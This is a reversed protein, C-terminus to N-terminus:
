KLTLKLEVKEPAFCIHNDCCQYAVTCKAEGGGSGAIEQRFVITDEYITTGEANYFRVDPLKMAGVTQYGDPLDFSVRTPIFPDSPATEAYLHYGPHISIKVVLEKNGNSLDITRSGIDVPELDSTTGSPITAIAARAEKAHYDNVGPERSNILFLWGGAETFFMRDKNTDFWERWEEPTAFDCLTYRTLIRKGKEADESSEMLRIATDLLRLDNNPIGLSKVDEDLEFHYFGFSYFYDKNEDYFKIYAESDTGFRDFFDKQYRKIYAEFPMVAPKKMNVITKDAASLKEGKTQKEKLEQQRKQMQAYFEEDSKLRDEYSEHTALYKLEKLYERTAIRDEYKRAIVGQGAFKSIYVIANALVTQAEPTMYRPSAAFGWHLFNGHRGIAVADLTKACVGSSIYEAEPSDEFGWPRAVMGIRFGADSEYGKTQVQWMPISDPITGDVYYQYHYAGSPTPRNRLTLKVPFPAHFIPHEQRFHHADADLCLCYWDTKLGIRRGLKEGLEGIFLMPRDFAETLYGEATSKTIKGQDDREYIRPSIPKPTGDMVTVDYNKSLAETYDAADVIKVSSFYKKLMTEFAKTREHVDQKWAVSDGNFYEINWDASGGVYLIRLHEKKAHATGSILILAVFLM